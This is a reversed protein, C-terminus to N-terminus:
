SSLAISLTSRSSSVMFAASLARTWYPLPFHFHGALNIRVRQVALVRLDGADARRDAVLVPDVRREHADSEDGGRDEDAELQREDSIRCESDVERQLLLLREGAIPVHAVEVAHVLDHLALRRHVRH